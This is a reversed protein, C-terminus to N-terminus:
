TALRRMARDRSHILSRDPYHSRAGLRADDSQRITRFECPLCHWIANPPDIRRLVTQRVLVAAVGVEDDAEAARGLEPDDAGVVREAAPASGSRGVVRHESLLEDLGRHAARLAKVFGDRAKTRM